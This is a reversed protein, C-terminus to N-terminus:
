SGMRRSRAGVSARAPDDNLTAYWRARVRATKGQETGVWAARAAVVVGTPSGSACTTRKESLM